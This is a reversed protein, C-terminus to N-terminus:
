FYTSGQPYEEFYPRVKEYIEADKAGELGLWGACAEDESYMRWMEDCQELSAYFGRDMLINQIRRCDDSFCPEPKKIRIMRM